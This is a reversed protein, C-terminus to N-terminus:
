SYTIRGCTFTWRQEAASAGFEQSPIQTPYCDECTAIVNANSDTLTLTLGSDTDSESYFYAVLMKFKTVADSLQSINIDCTGVRSLNKDHVWGGTAYSKTSWLPDSTQISISSLTDGEGGIKVNNFLAAIVDNDSEISLIYNALSYRM